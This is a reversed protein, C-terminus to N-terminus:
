DEPNQRNNTEPPPQRSAKYAFKYILYVLGGVLCFGLCGVALFGVGIIGWLTDLQDSALALM